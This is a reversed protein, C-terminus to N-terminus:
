LCGSKHGASKDHGSTSVWIARSGRCMTGRAWISWSRFSTQFGEVPSPVVMTQNGPACPIGQRPNNQNIRATKFVKYRAPVAKPLAHNAPRTRRISTGSWPFRLGVGSAGVTRVKAGPVELELYVYKPVKLPPPTYFISPSSATICKILIM